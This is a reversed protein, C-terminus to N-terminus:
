WGPQKTPKQSHGALGGSETLKKDGLKPSVAAARTSSSVQSEQTEWPWSLTHAQQKQSAPESFPIQPVNRSAALVMQKSSGGQKEGTPVLQWGVSKRPPISVHMPSSTVLELIPYTWQHASPLRGMQSYSTSNPCEQWKTRIYAHCQSSHTLM